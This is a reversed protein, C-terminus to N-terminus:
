DKKGLNLKALELNGLIDTTSLPSLGNGKVAFEQHDEYVKIIITFQPEDGNITQKAERILNDMAIDDKIKGFFNFAEKTENNRNDWACEAEKLKEMSPLTDIVRCLLSGMFAGKVKSKFAEKAADLEQQEQQSM